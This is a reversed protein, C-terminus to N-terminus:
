PLDSSSCPWPAHGQEQMQRLRQLQNWPWAHRAPRAVESKMPSRWISSSIGTVVYADSCPAHLHLTADKRMVDNTRAPEPLKQLDLHKATSRDAPHAIQATCAFPRQSVHQEETCRQSFKSTECVHSVWKCHSNAQGRCNSLSILLARLGRRSFVPASARSCM